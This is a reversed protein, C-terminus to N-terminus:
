VLGLHISETLLRAIIVPINNKVAIAADSAPPPSTSDAICLSATDPLLIVRIVPTERSTTFPIATIAIAAKNNGRKFSLLSLRARPYKPNLIISANNQIMLANTGININHISGCDAAALGSTYMILTKTEATRAFRILIIIGNNKLKPATM